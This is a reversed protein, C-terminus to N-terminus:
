SLLFIFDSVWDGNPLMRLALTEKKVSSTGDLTSFNCKRKGKGTTNEEMEPLVEDSKFKENENDDHINDDDEEEYSSYYEKGESAEQNFFQKVKDPTSRFNKCKKM